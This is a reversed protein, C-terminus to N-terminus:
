VGLYHQIRGFHRELLIPATVVVAGCASRAVPDTFAVYLARDSGANRSRAVYERLSPLFTAVRDHTRGPGIHQMDFHGDHVDVHARRFGRGAAPRVREGIGSSM